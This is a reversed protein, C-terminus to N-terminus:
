MCARIFPHTPSSVVSLLLSYILSMLFGSHQSGNLFISEMIGTDQIQRYWLTLLSRPSLESLFAQLQCLSASAAMAVIVM